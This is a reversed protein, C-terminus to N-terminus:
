RKQSHCRTTTPWRCRKSYILGALTFTMSMLLTVGSRLSGRAFPGAPTRANSVQNEPLPGGRTEEESAATDLACSRTMRPM